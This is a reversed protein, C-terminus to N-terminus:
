ACNAHALFYRALDDRTHSYNEDNQSTQREISPRDIGRTTCTSGISQRASRRMLERDPVFNKSCCTRTRCFHIKAMDEVFARMMEDNRIRRYIWRIFMLLQVLSSLAVTWWYPDDVIRILKAL